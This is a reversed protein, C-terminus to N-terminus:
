NIDFIRQPHARRRILDVIARRNGRARGARDVWPEPTIARVHNSILNRVAIKAAYSWRMTGKEVLYFPNAIQSYGLKVGPTRAGKSGQHVGVFADTIVTRGRGELRAGFDVDEQWGYLPLVEDFRVDGIASTRYVMNCGYLGGIHAKMSMTPHETADWEDLMRIADEHSIGPSNIGDALLHGNASIIEPHESFLREIGEIASRSPIYDDDFFAVVDHDAVVADLGANRQAPLGKPGFIIQSGAVLDGDRPLDEQCTVSYVFSDPKRTQVAMRGTWQALGEPRGVSAIVVAIRLRGPPGLRAHCPTSSHAQM